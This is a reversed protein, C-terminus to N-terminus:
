ERREAQEGLGIIWAAREALPRDVFRGDPLRTAGAGAQVARAYANLVERARALEEPSPQFVGHILSLQEPHIASMGFFGLRKVREARQVLGEPDRLRTYAGEAPPALGALRSALVVESRAYLTELDEPGPEAGVDRCFDAAGFVLREVRPDAAALERAAAVGRATEITLDLGVRGPELGRRHEQAAIWASVQRVDESREAKPLRIATLGPQVVAAIDAATRGTEVGNVRVSVLDGEAPRGALLGAVMERAEDKGGEPVADELDLIVADAGASFVRSLLKQNNGPAFLFSRAPHTRRRESSM